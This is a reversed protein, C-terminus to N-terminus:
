FKLTRNNLTQPKIISVPLQCPASMQPINSARDAESTDRNASTCRSDVAIESESPPGVFFPVTSRAYTFFCQFPDVVAAISYPDLCFLSLNSSTIAPNFLIFEYLTDIMFSIPSRYEDIKMMMMQMMILSETSFM